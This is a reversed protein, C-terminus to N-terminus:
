PVAGLLVPRGKAKRSAGNRLDNRYRELAQTLSSGGGNRSQAALEAMAKDLTERLWLPRKRSKRIAGGVPPPLWGERVGAKFAALNLGCYRAAERQTLMMPWTGHPVLPQAELMREEVDFAAELREVAVVAADWMARIEDLDAHMSDLMAAIEAEEDPTM